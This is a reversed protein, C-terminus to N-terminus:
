SKLIDKIKKEEGAIKKLLEARAKPDNTTRLEGRFNEIETVVRAAELRKEADKVKMLGQVVFMAHISRDFILMLLSLGAVIVYLWAANFKGEAAFESWRMIALGFFIVLFAIWGIKRFTTSEFGELFFFFIVFPLFAALVVALAGNPLWITKILSGSTIYRVGLMTVLLSVIFAIGKSDGVRPVTRVALTVIILVIFFVLVKAFLAEGPTLGGLDAADIDGVFFKAIPNATEAFKDFFGQIGGAIGQASVFGVLNIMLLSFVFIGVLRKKHM